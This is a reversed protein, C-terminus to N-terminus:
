FIDIVEVAKCFHNNRLFHRSSEICTSFLSYDYYEKL